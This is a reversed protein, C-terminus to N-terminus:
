DAYIITVWGRNYSTSDFDTSDFLGGPLRYLTLTGLSNQFLWGQPTGTVASGTNLSLVENGTDSRITVNMSRVDTVTIGTVVNVNTTTDMNWDGIDIIAVSTTALKNDVYAKISQQSAIATASDSALTDEDLFATVGDVVNLEAATSTVAASGLNPFSGQVAQKIGRLHNDGESVNDGAAPNTDDLDNIYNFSTELGM